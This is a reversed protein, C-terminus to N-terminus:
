KIILYGKYGVMRGLFPAAIEVDFAVKGEEILIESAKIKPSLIEPVPIVGFLRLGCSNLFLGKQSAEVNLVIGGPGLFEILQNKDSGYLKQTTALLVDGFKRSWIESSGQPQISLRVPVDVGSPPMGGLKAAMATLFNSAGFVECSGEAEYVSDGAHLAQIEKPLQQYTEGLVEPLLGLNITKNQEQTSMMM